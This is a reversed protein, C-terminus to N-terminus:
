RRNIDSYYGSTAKEITGQGYTKGDGHHVKDWKERYLRSKRFMTDILGANNNTWYALIGCLALDAESSSFYGDINGEWLANFKDGNKAAKARAIIEDESFSTVTSTTITAMAPIQQGFIELHFQDLEQQRSEVTLPTDELRKSTVTFFRGSDYCEYNGKKRGGKLLKGKVIVHLGTGSPSYETYSNFLIIYRQAEGTIRGADDLCADFDIGCYPDDKTFVFGIGDFKGGNAVNLANKFMTWTNPNDTAAKRGNIQYPVKDFKKRKENWVLRYVVWQSLAKLEEPIAAINLQFGQEQM